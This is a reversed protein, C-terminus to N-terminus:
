LSLKLGTKDKITVECIFVSVWGWSLREWRGKRLSISVPCHELGWWKLFIIIERKPSLFILLYNKALLLRLGKMQLRKSRPGLLPCVSFLGLLRHCQLCANQAPCPWKSATHSGVLSKVQSKPEEDNFCTVEWWFATIFFLTTFIFSVCPYARLGFIKRGFPGAETTSTSQLNDKEMGELTFYKPQM